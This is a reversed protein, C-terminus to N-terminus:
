DEVPIAKLANNVVTLVAYDGPEGTLRRTVSRRFDERRDYPLACGCAPDALAAAPDPM